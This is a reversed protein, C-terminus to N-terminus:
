IHLVTQVSYNYKQFAKNVEEYCETVIIPEPSDTTYIYCGDGSDPELIVTIMKPNITVKKGKRTIYEFM